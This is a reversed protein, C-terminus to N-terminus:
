PPMVAHFAVIHQPCNPLVLAVRDGAQVGLKKLGAAARSILAGLERYSTQAGFFELATKSGFRKVSSEMLDM